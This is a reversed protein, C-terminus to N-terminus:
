LLFSRDASTTQEHFPTSDFIGRSYKVFQIKVEFSFPVSVHLFQHDNANTPMM